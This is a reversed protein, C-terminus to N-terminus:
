SIFQFWEGLKKTYLSFAVQFFENSTFAFVFLGLGINIVFGVMIINMQPVMRSIVGLISAILINIFIMPSALMLASLFVSKFFAIFFDSAHIIKGLDYLHISFFSEYVGKFMPILAGSSIVMVVVTLQVLKEIPGMDQGSQPDFYRVADFGIQQTIVTGASTFIGMISKVFFGIMLGITSYFITLIWFNDVGIYDIDKVVESSLWPYFAYSLILAMLVKLIGPVAIHDFIPFHVIVTLWRVFILWFAIISVQDVISASIM